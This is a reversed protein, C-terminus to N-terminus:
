AQLRFGHKRVAVAATTPVDLPISTAQPELCDPHWDLELWTLIDSLVDSPSDLLEEFNVVKVISGGLKAAWHDSLVRIADLRAALAAADSTYDRAANGKFWTKSIAAALGHDRQVVLVRMNSGLISAACGIWWINDVSADVAYRGDPPLDSLYEGALHDLFTANATLVANPGLTAVVDNLYTTTVGNAGVAPHRSLAAHLLTAGACPPGVILLPTRGPRQRLEVDGYMHLMARAMARTAEPASTQARTPPVRAWQLANAREVFSWDGTQEFRAFLLAPEERDPIQVDEGLVALAYASDSQDPALRCMAKATELDGLAIAVRTAYGAATTSNLRAATSFADLAERPKSARGLAVGLNILASAREGDDVALEVGKAATSAAEEFRGTETLVSALNTYGPSLRQLETAARYAAEAAAFEGNSALADGQSMLRAWTAGAEAAADLTSKKKRRSTKKQPEQKPWAMAVAAVLVILAGVWWPWQRGKKSPRRAQPPRHLPKKKAM